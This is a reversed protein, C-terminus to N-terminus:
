DEEYRIFSLITELDWDDCVGEMIEHAHEMAWTGDSEVSCSFKEEFEVHDRSSLAILIESFRNHYKPNDWADCIKDVLERNHGNYPNIIGKYYGNAERNKKM